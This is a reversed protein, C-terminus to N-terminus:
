AHDVRFVHTLGSADFVRRVASTPNAVRLTRRGSGSSFTEASDVLLRLGASDLFTVAHFDLVVEDVDAGLVGALVSELDGISSADIEGEVTM